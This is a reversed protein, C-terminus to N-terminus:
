SFRRSLIEDEVSRSADIYKSLKRYCKDCYYKNKNPEFVEECEECRENVKM